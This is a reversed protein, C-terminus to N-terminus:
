PIIIPTPGNAPFQAAWEEPDYNRTVFCEYHSPVAHSVGVAQAMKVSGDFFPFEGESPHNTFFGIDPSLSSVISTLDQRQAYTNIPDGTFYAVVGDAEVVFGLHTVDPPDIGNDPDGEPPKAYVATVLLSGLPLTEGAEITTVQFSPISTSEALNAMSEEPGFYEVDPFSEHIRNLSEPCTHDGHNHTLLVFNVPLESEDLPTETYVFQDAPRERPFYPDIMAVTGASDKLAFTSQEFWHIALSGAPVDAETLAHM